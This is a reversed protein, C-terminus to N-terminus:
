AFLRGGADIGSVPETNDLEHAKRLRNALHWATKQAVGIDRHLQMSSVTKFSATLLYIAIARYQYGLKSGQMVTGIKLSFMKKKGDCGGKVRCRHTM